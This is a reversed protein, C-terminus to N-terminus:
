SAIREGEADADCAVGDRACTAGMALEGGVLQPACALPYPAFLREVVDRVALDARM